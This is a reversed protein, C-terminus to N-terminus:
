ASGGRPHFALWLWEQTVFGKWPFRARARTPVYKGGVVNRRGSQGYSVSVKENVILRVRRPFRADGRQSERFRFLFFLRVHKNRLFAGRFGRQRQETSIGESGFFVGSVRCLGFDREFLAGSRNSGGQRLLDCVQRIALV